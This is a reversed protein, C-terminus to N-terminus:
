ESVENWTKELRSIVPTDLGQVIANLSSFNKFNRCYQAIRIWKEIMKARKSISLNINDLVTGQVIFTIINFQDIFDNISKFDNIELSQQKKRTSWISGLCNHTIVKKFLEKDIYTLQEAFYRDEVDKFKTDLTIRSSSTITSQQIINDDIDKKNIVISGNSSSRQHYHHNHSTLKM